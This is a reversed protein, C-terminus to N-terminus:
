LNIVKDAVQMSTIIDLMNTTEGVAKKDLLDFHTLCAGCVLIHAHSKELDKLISLVSSDKITFKVGNNVFVLRWLDKGMENLTKLFNTMLKAGLEEDGNGITSSGIMVMIKQNGQEKNDKKSKKDSSNPKIETGDSKGSITSTLGDSEVSVEFKYYDFLRTVNEVAADNDVIVEIYTAGQEEIAQKTQLVPGPCDIKRCDLKIPM